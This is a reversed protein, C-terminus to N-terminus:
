DPEDETQTDAVVPRSHQIGYHDTSRDTNDRVDEAPM